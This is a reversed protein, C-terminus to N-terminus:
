FAPRSITANQAMGRFFDRRSISRVNRSSGACESCRTGSTDPRVTTQKRDDVIPIMSSSNNWQPSTQLVPGIGPKEVKLGEEFPPQISHTSASSPSSRLPPVPRQPCLGSAQFDPNGCGAKEWVESNTRLGHAYHADRLSLPSVPRGGLAANM